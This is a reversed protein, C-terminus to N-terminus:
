KYILRKTVSGDATRVHVSYVGAPLSNLNLSWSITGARPRLEAKLVTQGLSNLVKASTAATSRLGALTLTATGSTPNPHLTAQGQFAAARTGLTISQYNYYYYRQANVYTRTNVDYIQSSLGIRDNTANYRVSFRFGLALHWSGNQWYEGAHLLLENSSDYINTTRSNNVWGGNVQNEVLLINDRNNAGYTTTFRSTIQWTTGTWQQNEYYTIRSEADRTINIHQSSNVWSNNMRYQTTTANHLSATGAYFYLYRTGPLLTGSAVDLTSVIQEILRGATDFTFAFEVNSTTVWMGNQWEQGIVQTRYGQANYSLSSRYMNVWAGNQWEQNLVQTANGRTDYTSFSQTFNRWTTGDWTEDLTYNTQGAANYSNSQRTTPRQSVSDSSIAQTIRGQTDYTFTRLIPSPWQNTTTNWTYFSARAPVRVISAPRTLSTLQLGRVNLYALEPMPAADPPLPPISQALLPMLGILWSVASVLFIHKM